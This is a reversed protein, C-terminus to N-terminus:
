NEIHFRSRSGIGWQSPMMVWLLTHSLYTEGPLPEPPPLGAADDELAQRLDTTQFIGADSSSGNAVVDVYMFKYDADVLALLVISHFGKYNYYLSGMNPPPPPLSTHRHAERGPCRGCPPIAMQRCAWRSSSELRWPDNTPCQIVEQIYEEIIAECTEKVVLSLTNPGVRFNLCMSKFSEGTALFRLTMALHLGPELPKRMRTEQKMIRPTICELIQTFLREDMRLFNKYTSKDTEILTRLLAQYHGYQVRELIWRRVWCKRPHERRWRCRRLLLLCYLCVLNNNAQIRHYICRVEAAERHTLKYLTLDM